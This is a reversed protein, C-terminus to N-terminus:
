AGSRGATLKGEFVVAGKGAGAIKILDDTPRGSMGSLFLRAGSTSAAAAIRVLDDTSRGLVNFRIGGAASAIRVLDETSMGRFFSMRTKSMGLNRNFPM